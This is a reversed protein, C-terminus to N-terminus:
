QGMRLWVEFLCFISDEELDIMTRLCTYTNNRADQCKCSFSESDCYAMNEADVESFCEVDNTFKQGEGNYEILFQRTRNEPENSNQFASLGPCFRDIM